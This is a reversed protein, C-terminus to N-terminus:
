KQHLKDVIATLAHCIRWDEGEKVGWECWTKMIGRMSLIHFQRYLRGYNQRSIIRTIIWDGQRLNFKWTSDEFSENITHLSASNSVVVVGCVIVIARPSLWIDSHRLYAESLVDKPGFLDKLLKMQLSPLNCRVSAERVDFLFCARAYQQRKRNFLEKSLEISLTTKGVGGMRFIGVIKVKGEGEKNMGCCIEFDQVLNHLCRREFDRVLKDLAVPNKAVHLPKIRQVEWQVASLISRHEGINSNNMEYGTTFSISQLAEKWLKLKDLHRSKKRYQIFADAYVGKEIHRLAWPEVEYFVPIIKAPDKVHSSSHQQIGEPEIGSFAHYEDKHQPSSSSSAM